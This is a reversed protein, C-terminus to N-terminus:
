RVKADALERRRVTGAETFLRLAETDKADLAAKKAALYVKDVAANDPATQIAKLRAACDESSLGFKNGDNDPMAATLGTAACFTYRELYALTSGGAQLPNKVGSDEPPGSKTSPKSTYLGYRLICSVTILTPIETIEFSWTIGREALGPMAASVYADLDAYSYELTYERGSGKATGSMKATRNKVIEPPNKKFDAMQHAFEQEDAMERMKRQGDLVINFLKEIKDAELNTNTALREMLAILSSDPERALLAAASRKDEVVLDTEM